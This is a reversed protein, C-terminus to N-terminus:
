VVSKRDSIDFEKDGPDLQYLRDLTTKKGHDALGAEDQFFPEEGTTKRDGNRSFCGATSLAILVLVVLSKALSRFSMSMKMQKDITIM